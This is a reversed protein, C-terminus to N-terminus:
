KMKRLADIGKHAFDEAEAAKGLGTRKYELLRTEGYHRSAQRAAFLGFASLGPTLLAATFLSKFLGGRASLGLGLGAGLLMGDQELESFRRPGM